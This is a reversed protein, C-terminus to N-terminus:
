ISVTILFSRRGAILPASSTERSGAAQRYVTVQYFRHILDGTREELNVFQDARFPGNPLGPLFRTDVGLL